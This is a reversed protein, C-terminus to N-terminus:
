ERTQPGILYAYVWDTGDDGGGTGGTCGLSLLYAEIERADDATPAKRHIRWYNNRPVNHDGFLRQEVDSAIGVYWSKFPSGEKKIHAVIETAISTQTSTM